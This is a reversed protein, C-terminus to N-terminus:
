RFFISSVDNYPEGYMDQVFYRISMSMNQLFAGEIEEVANSWISRICTLEMLEGNVAVTLKIEAENNVKEAKVFKGIKINLGDRLIVKM